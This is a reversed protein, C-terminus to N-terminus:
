SVQVALGLYSGGVWGINTKRHRQLAVSILLIMSGEPVIRRRVKRKRAIVQLKCIWLHIKVATRCMGIVIM